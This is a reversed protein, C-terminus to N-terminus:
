LPPLYAITVMEQGRNRSVLIGRGPPLTMPRVDGDAQRRGQPREHDARRRLPEEYRRACQRRARSAAPADTVVVHLGIDRAQPLYELQPNIGATIM